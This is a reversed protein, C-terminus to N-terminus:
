KEYKKLRENLTSIVRNTVAHKVEEAIRDYDLDFFRDYIPQEMVESIKLISGFLSLMPLKNEENLELIKDFITTLDDSLVDQVHDHMQSGDIMQYIVEVPDVSKHDSENMVRDLYQPIFMEIIMDEIHSISNM